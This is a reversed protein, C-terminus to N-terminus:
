DMVYLFREYEHEVATRDIDAPVVFMSIVSGREAEGSVAAVTCFGTIPTGSNTIYSKRGDLVWDDGERRARTTMAAVDSGAGLETVGFGALMQGRCIPALWREKQERSGFLAIPAAGIGVGAALTIAVSSDARALEEIALCMDLHGAGRGGSEAPFPIGFLGLRGMAEVVDLPFAGTADTEATRPAVVDEAFTRVTRRLEEQEPTLDLNM